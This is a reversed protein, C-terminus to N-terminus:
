QALEPFAAKFRVILAHLVARVQLRRKLAPIPLDDDAIEVHDVEIAQLRKLDELVRPAVDWENQHRCDNALLGGDEGHFLPSMIVDHFAVQGAENRNDLSFKALRFQATLLAARKECQFLFFILQALGLFHLGHAAEGPVACSKM